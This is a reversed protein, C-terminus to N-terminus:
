KSKRTIKSIRIKKTGMIVLESKSGAVCLKNDKLWQTSNGAEQEILNRLVEQHTQTSNFVHLLGGLVAGYKYLGVKWVEGVCLWLHLVEMM